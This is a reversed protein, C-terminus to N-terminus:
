YVGTAVFANNIFWGMHYGHKMYSIMSDTEAADYYLGHAHLMTIWDEKYRCNIHGEGGQGVTAASFVVTRVHKAINRVLQVAGDPTMHEAVELCIGLDYKAGLILPKSLDDKMIAISASCHKKAVAVAEFDNEIGLCDILRGFPRLYFGTACGFDVVSKPHLERTIWRCLRLAQPAEEAEIKTFDM